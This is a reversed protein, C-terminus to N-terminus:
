FDTTESTGRLFSPETTENESFRCNSLDYTLESAVGVEGSYRNKLVRLTTSSNTDQQNRELAILNDSLQSISASGRLQGLTVRAGEEHNKDQQTRRLHSVLFLHIGTREVLSRLDTMTKDILRREEGDLGSLLISLHDLFIVRCELGCALYEIRSYIVQPDFSGFGDYLYLNWNGITSRYIDELEQKEYGGLHLPKGVATSMLGLATRRNSEELALYGVQEGRELLYTGLQRCFSSKGSGTGATITTLEGYRIGHTKHQLGRFPYEHNCPPEPTTVLELLDKGDVIGDPRYPKADWIAKRIALADNAQLAESADKYSELRAIKVKGPPLVSAADEAAKRGAEDGDFFLIIEAYGQFLDYQKQIDKKASAAGHPLSIHPWGDYAEWGSMADLEGEYVHIRKGSSPFLHQGFLTDTSNGEYYFDKQKTKVKAGQLIGDSTFYYFRLLEGDRFVKYKQCTEESIGRRQLRVASGKLQVNTSMKHNHIIEGNGPTRTHCVFCYTHGDSYESKADSSGCNECATHRVFESEIHAM